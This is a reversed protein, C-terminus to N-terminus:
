SAPAFIIIADGQVEPSPSQSSRCVLTPVYDADVQCVAGRLFSASGTPSHVVLKGDTNQKFELISVLEGRNLDCGLGGCRALSGFPDKYASQYLCMINGNTTMFLTSQYLPEKDEPRLWQYSIFGHSGLDDEIGPEQSLSGGECVDNTSQTNDNLGQSEEVKPDSVITHPPVNVSTQNTPKYQQDDINSEKFTSRNIVTTLVATGLITVGFIAILFINNRTNM